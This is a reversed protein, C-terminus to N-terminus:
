PSLARGGPTQLWALLSAPRKLGLPRCGCSSTESQTESRFTAALNRYLSNQNGSARVNTLAECATKSLAGGRQCLRFVAECANRQQDPERLDAPTPLEVSLRRKSLLGSAKPSLGELLDAVQGYRKHQAAAHLAAIEAHLKNDNPARVERVYIRAAERIGGRLTEIQMSQCDRSRPLDISAHKTSPTCCM